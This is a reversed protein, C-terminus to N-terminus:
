ARVWIVDFADSGGTLFQGRVALSGDARLVAEHLGWRGRFPEYAMTDKYRFVGRYVKGDFIGVGDWQRPNEVRYQNDSLRTIVVAESPDDRANTKYPGEIAM